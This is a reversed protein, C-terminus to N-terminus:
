PPNPGGNSDWRHRLSDIHVDLDRESFTVLDSHGFGKSYDLASIIEPAIRLLAVGAQSPQPSIRLAAGEGLAPLPPGAYEPYRKLRLGGVYDFECPDTVVSARGALSLGKIDLPHPADSGITISVRPDRRINAYKQANRAVFCYLLFGDNLYGVMTAQPWGDPRNTAITMVRHGDLLQLILRKVRPMM